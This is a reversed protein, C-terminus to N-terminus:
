PYRGQLRSLTTQNEACSLASADPTSDWPVVCNDPISKPSVLLLHSSVCMRAGAAFPAAAYFLANDTTKCTAHAASPGLRVSLRSTSSGGAHNPDVLSKHWKPPRMFNSGQERMCAGPPHDHSSETVCKCMRCFDNLVRKDSCM